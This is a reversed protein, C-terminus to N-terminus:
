KYLFVFPHEPPPGKLVKSWAWWVPNRYNKKEWSRRQSTDQLTTGFRLVKRAEQQSQTHTDTHPAPLSPAASPPLSSPYLFCFAKQACLQLELASCGLNCSRIPLRLLRVLVNKLKGPSCRGKFQKRLSYLILSCATKLNM